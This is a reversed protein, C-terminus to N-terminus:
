CGRGGSSRQELRDGLEVNVIQGIFEADGNRVNAGDGVLM